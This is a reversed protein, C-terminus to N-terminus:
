SPDLLFKPALNVLPAINDQAWCTLSNNVKGSPVVSTEYDFARGNILMGEGHGGTTFVPLM